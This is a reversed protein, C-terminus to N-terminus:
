NFHPAKTVGSKDFPKTWISAITRCGNNIYCIPRFYECTLPLLLYLFFLMIKFRKHALCQRQLVQEAYQIPQVTPWYFIQVFTLM